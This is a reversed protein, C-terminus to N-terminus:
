FIKPGEAPKAMRGKANSVDEYKLNGVNLGVFLSYTVLM